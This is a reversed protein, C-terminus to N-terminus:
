SQKPNLYKPNIVRQAVQLGIITKGDIFPMRSIQDATFWKNGEIHEGEDLKPKRPEQGYPVVAMFFPMLTESNAIDFGYNGLYVLAEPTYGTEETTERVAAKHPQEDRKVLGQPINPIVVKGQKGERDRLLMRKEYSLLFEAMGDPNIRVPTVFAAPSWKINIKDFKYEGDIAVAVHEVTGYREDNVVDWGGNNFDIKWNANDTLGRRDNESLEDFPTIRFEPM